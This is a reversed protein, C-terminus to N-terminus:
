RHRSKGERSYEPPIIDGQPLTLGLTGHQDVQLAALRPPEERSTPGVGHRLPQPLMRPPLHHRAAACAGRGLASPVPSRGGRLDCSTKLQELMEPLREILPAARGALRQLRALRQPGLLSDHQRIPRDGHGHWGMVEGQRRLLAGCLALWVALRQMCRAPGQVALAPRGQGNRLLDPQTQARPRAIEAGGRKRPACTPAVEPGPTEM